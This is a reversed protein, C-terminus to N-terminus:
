CCWTGPETSQWGSSWKWDSAEPGGPSLYSGDDRFLHGDQTCPGISLQRPMLRCSMRERRAARAGHYRFAEVVDHIPFVKHSLPRYTGSAFKQALEAFM